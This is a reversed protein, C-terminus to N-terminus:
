KRTHYSTNKDVEKDSNKTSLATLATRNEAVTKGDIQRHRRDNQRDRWAANVVIFM